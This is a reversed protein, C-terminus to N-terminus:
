DDDGAEEEDGDLDDHGMAGHSPCHPAGVELWKKTVRVTYGCDGCEAKLLRSTQKKPGSSYKWDLAAHPLPGVAKLIPAISKKFEPGPTTATPKGELGLATVVVPFEGRHGMKIGLAAHTLEHAVIGAVIVPDDQDIRVLIEYHGDKSAKDSYCTGLAKGKTLSLTIRWNKPLPHELKKFWPSMAMGVKNLWEERTTVGVTCGGKGPLAVM